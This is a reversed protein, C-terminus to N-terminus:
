NAFDFVLAQEVKGDLLAIFARHEPHTLYADRAAADSFTVVFAHTFGQNLNEPSVNTGAEYSVIGPIKSPLLGFAEVIESIATSDANDKFQFLVIHQM